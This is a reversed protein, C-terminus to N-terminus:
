GFRSRVIAIYLSKIANRSMDESCNRKLFGLMWTARATIHDIHSNWSLDMLYQCELTSKVCVTKREQFQHLLFPWIRPTEKYSELNWMKETSFGIWKQTVLSDAVYKTWTLNFILVTKFLHLVNFSKLNLAKYKWIKPKTRYRKMDETWHISHLCFYWWEIWIYFVL